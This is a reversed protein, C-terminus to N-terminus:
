LKYFSICVLKTHTKIRRIHHKPILIWVNDFTFYKKKNKCLNAGTLVSPFVLRATYQGNTECNELKQKRRRLSHIRKFHKVLFTTWDQSSRSVIQPAKYAIGGADADLNFNKKASRTGFNNSTRDVSFKYPYHM